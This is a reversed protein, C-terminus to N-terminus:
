PMSLTSTLSATTHSVKRQQRYSVAMSLISLLLRKFKIKPSTPFSSIWIARFIPKQHTSLSVLFSTQNAHNSYPSLTLDVYGFSNKPNAAFNPPFLYLARLCDPVIFVNCNELETIISQINVDPGKKPLYGGNPNTIKHVAAKSEIPTGAAAITDTARKGLPMDRKQMHRGQPTKTDFHVTPTIFDVHPQVFAPISYDDCGVHPKGTIHKHMFFETKLLNEAEAVTADFTLWGMSQSRSIREPSIGSSKLWVIVADFSERSPAFTEAVKKASWHQGYKPSSPHSVEMLFEEAKDLNSQKLGIRMPLVDHSPLKDHREWGFPLADRKEHLVNTFSPAAIVSAVLAAITLLTNHMALALKQIWRFSFPQSPRSAEKHM